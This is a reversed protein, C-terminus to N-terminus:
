SRSAVVLSRFHGLSDSARLVNLDGGRRWNLDSFGSKMPMTPTEKSFPGTWVGEPIGYNGTNERMTGGSKVKKEGQVGIRLHLCTVGSPASPPARFPLHGALFSLGGQQQRRPCTELRSQLSTAGSTTINVPLLARHPGAPLAASM